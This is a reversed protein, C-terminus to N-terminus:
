DALNEKITILFENFYKDYDKGAQDRMQIILLDNQPDIRFIASSKIGHGLTSKSLITQGKKEGNPYYDWMATMGIGWSMNLDPYYPKLPVPIIKKYTEPSFFQTDGYKGKNLLLQAAKAIDAATSTSGTAMDGMITNKIGIPAFFNEHMLRLASKQSVIEMVKGALDYGMGNYSHKKGPTISKLGHSLINELYPNHIGDFESHGEFGTTHTFCHRLTIVKEGEVPFDKLYKGVPDDISILGQDVFQAFMLGTLNKSLSAIYMPTDVTIPGKANNGFPEHIVIVGHRAVLIVFPEKSDNYWQQCVKRIKRAADPKVSAEEATGEHLVPAKDTIKRPMKLSPYKADPYLLKRKLALHFDNNKIEPIDTKARKINSPEAETLYCMIVPGYPDSELFEVFKRGAWNSITDQNQQWVQKSVPGGPMYDVKAKPDLDFPHWDRERYNYITMRPDDRWPHGNKDRCYFTMARRIQMGEPTTANIVAAYRGPKKATQVENLDADFWRVKLPFKGMLEEVLKANEWKIQPFAGQEFMFDWPKEPVLRCYQFKQFRDEKKVDGQCFKGEGIQDEGIYFSFYGEQMQDATKSLIIDSTARKENMVLKGEGIIESGVKVVIQKGATQGAAIVSLKICRAMDCFHVRTKALVNSREKLSLHVRHMSDSNHKTNLPYWQIQFRDNSSDSDNVFLQFGIEDNEVPTKRLNKWPLLAEINYGAITRRSSVEVTLESKPETKRHDYLKYRMKKGAPEGAAIAVQYYDPGGLQETVFMEVSDNRWLSGINESEVCSDDSVEVFVVLGRDNWGLRLTADLDSIPMLEGKTGTMVAVKMGNNGWDEIKGDITINELKPANFLLSNEGGHVTAVAALVALVCSILINNRAM